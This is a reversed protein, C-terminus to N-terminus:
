GIVFGSWTGTLAFRVLTIASIELMALSFGALLPVILDRWTHAQRERRLVSVFLAAGIASLLAVVSLSSLVGLTWLILPRGSLVLLAVVGAAACVALLDRLGDLSRTPQPQAWLTSNFFPVILHAATIGALLGTILRLPNSPPYIPQYGPFFTLYSNVGDVGLLAVFGILIAVIPLPPFRYSRLRNRAALILFSLLVGLYIGTCRACLPMLLDAELDIPFTREAIQHCIAYGVAAAKGLVGDPTGLLWLAFITAAASAVMLQLRRSFRLTFDPMEM